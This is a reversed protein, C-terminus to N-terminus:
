LELIKLAERHFINSIELIEDSVSDITELINKNYEKLWHYITM